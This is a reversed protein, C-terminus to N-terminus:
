EKMFKRLSSAVENIVSQWDGPSTQRFLRMVNPYWPSEAGELGWRWCGDFRSLGWVPRALAGALHIAATDVGIVLDLNAMLGASDAFDTIEGTYDEIAGEAEKGREGIQLSIFRIGGIELLPLFNSFHMSRRADIRHAQPQDSRPNGAWILGVKLGPKTGLIERWREVALPDAALYPLAAPITEIRDNFALPLSMLPCHIDFEPLPEGSAVLRDVGALSKLLRILPRPAELIVQGGRAKVLPAYRCFQLTDGFGQEAHLLIRQGELAEGSWQPVPFDRKPGRADIRSFGWEYDKWGNAYDGLLLLLLSNNWRAEAFDPRLKIAEGYAASAEEWRCLERLCNGLNYWADPYDPKQKIATQYDRKAAEWDELDVLANGRNFRYVPENPNRSIAKSFCLLAEPIENQAQLVTGLDCWAHANGPDAAVVKRLLSLAEDINGSSFLDLAQRHPSPPQEM